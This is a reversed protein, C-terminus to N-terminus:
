YKTHNVHSKTCVAVAVPVLPAFRAESATLPRVLTGQRSLLLLLSLNLMHRQQLQLQPEAKRLGNVAVSVFRTAGTGTATAILCNQPSIM